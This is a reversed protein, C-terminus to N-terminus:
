SLLPRAREHNLPISHHWKDGVFCPLHHNKQKDTHCNSYPKHALHMRGRMLVPMGRGARVM